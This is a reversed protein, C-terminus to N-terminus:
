CCLYVYKKGLCDRPGVSFPQVAGRADNKYREDGTWREPIFALPDTFHQASTYVPWHPVSVTVGGPVFHGCITSGEAPTCRLLGVPVPPYLRLAEKICANLYPLRALQELSIAASCAFSSRLEATLNHLKHPYTLLLYILGALLTATTETGAIMFLSANADMAARSLQAEEGDGRPSLVQTWLDVGATQRGQELRKTVRTASHQFHETRTKQLKKGLAFSLTRFLRPYYTSFIGLRAGVKVNRFISSVWPVYEKKDLLHLSEGFTMDAM